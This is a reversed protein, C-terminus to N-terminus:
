CILLFSVFVYMGVNAIVEKGITTAEVIVGGVKTDGAIYIDNPWKLNLPIDGYGPYERVAQVIAIAVLHQLFPLHQGLNSSLPIHLQTSFM